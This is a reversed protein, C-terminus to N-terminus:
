ISIRRFYERPAHYCPDLNGTMQDKYKMVSVVDWDKMDFWFANDIDKGVIFYLRPTHQKQDFTTKKDLVIFKFRDIIESPYRYGKVEVCHRTGDKVYWIDGKDPKADTPCEPVYPPTYEVVLGREEMFKVVAREKWEAEKLATQFRIFNEDHVLGCQPCASM